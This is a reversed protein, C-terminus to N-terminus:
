QFSPACVVRWAKESRIIKKVLATHLQHGSCIAEVQGLLPKGLLSFDGILDLIKHRVFENPFRLGQKNLVADDGIIIANDLSGGMALGQSRLFPIDKLFAFTRAPAIDTIFAQKSHFYRYTQKLVVSHDFAIKYSVDFTSGPRVTISKGKESVRIPKLIEIYLREKNQLTTGAELLLTSFPSASGDMAPVEPGDLEVILNDIGLGSIAALLHEVTQVTAGESGIITSFQSPIIHTENAPIVIGGRDTRIFLIGDGVNAPVLRLNVTKGSHLGVGCCSVKQRITKEQLM